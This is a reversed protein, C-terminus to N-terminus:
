GSRNLLETLQSQQQRHTNQQKQIMSTNRLLFPHTEMFIHWFCLLGMETFHTYIDGICFKMEILGTPFIGRQGDEYCYLSCYFGSQQIKVIACNYPQQVYFQVCSTQVCSRNFILQVSGLLVLSM